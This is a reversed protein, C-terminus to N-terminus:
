VHIGNQRKEQMTKYFGSKYYQMIAFSIILGSCAGQILVSAAASTATLSTGMMMANDKLELLLDPDVKLFYFYLFVAFLMFSVLTTLVGLFLGELYVINLVNTQRRFYRFTSLLGAILIFINLFRLEVVHILNLYKMIMFYVIFSACILIGSKLALKPISIEQPNM